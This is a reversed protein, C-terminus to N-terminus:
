HKDRAKERWVRYNKRQPSILLGDEDGFPVRVAETQDFDVVHPNTQRTFYESRLCNILHTRVQKWPLESYTDSSADLHRAV